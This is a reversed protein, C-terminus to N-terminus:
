FLYIVEVSATEQHNTPATGQQFVNKNSKDYRFELRTILSPVPKFQLTPTFEWLTQAVPTAAM